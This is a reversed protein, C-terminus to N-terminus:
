RSDNIWTRIIDCLEREHGIFQHNGTSHIVVQGFPLLQQCYEAMTAVKDLQLDDGEGLVVLARNPPRVTPPHSYDFARLDEETLVEALVAAAIPIDYAKNPTRIGFAKKPALSWEDLGRSLSLFQDTWSDPSHGAQLMVSNAPSILVLEADIGKTACYVVKDCGYSHGQLLVRGCREQAFTMAAQVDLWCDTLREFASGVYTLRGFRYGEALAAAGRTNVGLIGIGYEPYLSYMTRLFSNHYFNGGKGHIHVVVASPNPPAVWLADLELGDDCYLSVLEFV